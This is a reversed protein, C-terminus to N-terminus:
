SLRICKDAKMQLWIMRGSWALIRVMQYGLLVQWVSTLNATGAQAAGKVRLMLWPVIAFYVAYMRGLFTLDKQGLLIGESACFVGHLAFYVIQISVLSNVLTVVAPDSSFLKGCTAPICAVVSALTVGFLGAAKLFNLTTAKLAKARQRQDKIECIGPIFSQATLSLSDSIPVLAYFISVMIQNAAMSLTGFCSSVVHNMAIYASTRGIMTTTVPLFYTGFGQVTEAAPYRLLDRLTCRDKLFGRTSKNPTPTSISAVPSQRKWFQRRKSPQKIGETLRPKDFLWKLFLSVAVYQSFITAWAAGAAGGILPHTNGVLLLDSLFNVVAATVIVYLPSKIDQLGLCAAQASGIVAAAPMGLARIRVYKVAASLVAPDMADNGILTRLMVKAFAFLVASLGVGVWLSLQLSGIVTKTTQPMGRARRDTEQSTAVSNTTAM